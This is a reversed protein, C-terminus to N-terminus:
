SAGWGGLKASLLHRLNSKQLAFPFANTPGAPTCECPCCMGDATRAVEASGLVLNGLGDLCQSPSVSHLGLMCAIGEPCASVKFDGMLIRGDSVTVRVLKDLLSHMARAETKGALEEPTLGVSCLHMYTFFAPHVVHRAVIYMGTLPATSTAM